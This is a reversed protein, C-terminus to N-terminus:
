YESPKEGSEKYDQINNTEEGHAQEREPLSVNQQPDDPDEKRKEPEDPRNQRVFPNGLYSSASRVRMCAYICCIVAEVLEVPSPCSLRFRGPQALSGVYCRDQGPRSIMKPRVTHTNTM